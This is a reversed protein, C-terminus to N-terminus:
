VEFWVDEVSDPIEIEWKGSLKEIDKRTRDIDARHRQCEKILFVMLAEAKDRSDIKVRKMIDREQFNSDYANM